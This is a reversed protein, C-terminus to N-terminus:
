MNLEIKEEKHELIVRGEKIDYITFEGFSDGQYLFFTKKKNKDEIIAQNDDGIIIGILNLDKVLEEESISVDKKIPIEIDEYEDDWDEVVPKVEEKLPLDIDLRSAKHKFTFVDVLFMILIVIILGALFINIKTFLKLQKKFQFRRQAKKIIDLLKGEPTMGAM